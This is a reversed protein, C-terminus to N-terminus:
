TPFKERRIDLMAKALVTEAKALEIQAKTERLQVDELDEQLKQLRGKYSDHVSQIEKRSKKELDVIKKEMKAKDSKLVKLEHDKDKM